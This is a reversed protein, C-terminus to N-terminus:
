DCVKKLELFWESKLCKCKNSNENVIWPGKSLCNAPCSPDVDCCIETCHEVYVNEYRCPGKPRNSDPESDGPTGDNTQHAPEPIINPPDTFIRRPLPERRPDRYNPDRYYRNPGRYRLGMPDVLNLPNGM